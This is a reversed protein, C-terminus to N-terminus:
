YTVLSKKTDLSVCQVEHGASWTHEIMTQRHKSRDVQHTKLTQHAQLANLFQEQTLLLPLSSLKTTQTLFGGLQKVLLLKYKLEEEAEESHSAGSTLAIKQRSIIHLSIICCYAM